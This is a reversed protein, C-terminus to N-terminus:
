RWSILPRVTKLEAAGVLEAESGAARSGEAVATVVELTPGTKTHYLVLVKM